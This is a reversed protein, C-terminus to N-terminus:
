LLASNNLVHSYQVVCILLGLIDPVTQIADYQVTISFLVLVISSYIM